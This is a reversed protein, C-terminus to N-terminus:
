VQSLGVNTMTHGLPGDSSLTMIQPFFSIDGVFLVSDWLLRYCLAACCPSNMQLAAALNRSQVSM